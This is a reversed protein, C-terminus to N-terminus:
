EKVIEETIENIKHIAQQISEQNPEMVYLEQAGYSYTYARSDNGELSKNEISWSPMKELQFNVFSYIKNQDMNTQFSNGLTKLLSAYKTVLSTSSTVKHIIAAIVAQQDKVRQRDGDRFSYRERAFALAAEGNLHNTGKQFRIGSYTSTFNYDSEVDIGGLADVLEILTTFNVRAYYNIEVELLDELTQVSCNIGYLGAHTLKDKRGTTGHLQVFYDRPISTLLIKHNKPNVTLLMNVDSRAVSSINGYVDIGSIYLTFPKETVDIDKKEIDRKVQISITHLIKIENEFTEMEEEIIDLYANSIFMAPIKKSLLDQGMSVVDEYTTEQFSVEDKLKQYAEQFNETETQNIGVTLNKIDQVKKYKSDKLVVVYYNETQYGLYQIQDMFNFTYYLHHIGLSLIVIFLCSIGNLIYKCKAKVRSYCLFFGSIGLFLFYPIAIGTFYGFPVVGTIGLMLFFITSLIILITIIVRSAILLKKNKHKQSRGKKQNRKKGM